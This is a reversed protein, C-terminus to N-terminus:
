SNSVVFPLYIFGIIEGYKSYCSIARYLAKRNGGEHSNQKRCKFSNSTMSGVSLMHEFWRQEVAFSEFFNGCGM